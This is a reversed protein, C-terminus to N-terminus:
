PAARRRALAELARALTAPGIYRRAPDAPALSGPAKQPPPPAPAAALPGQVFRLQTVASRGLFANIRRCLARTEHGLFLATGPLARLTLVGGSPGERFKLPRAIRAVAPGAIEVWHLVLRPDSFGARAFAAAGATGADASLPAARKRRPIDSLPQRDGSSRAM